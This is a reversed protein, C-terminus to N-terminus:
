APCPVFKNCTESFPQYHQSQIVFLTSAGDGKVVFSKLSFLASTNGGQGSSLDLRHTEQNTTMDVIRFFANQVSTFNMGKADHLSIVLLLKVINQPIANLDIKVSEDDGGM